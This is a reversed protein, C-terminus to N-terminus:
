SMLRCLTWTIHLLEWPIVAMKFCSIVCFDPKAYMGWRGSFKEMIRDIKQAEGPLHFVNLFVRVVKDFKTGCLELSDVNAHMVSLPFDKHQGLYDGIMKHVLFVILAAGPHRGCVTSCNGGHWLVYLWGVYDGHVYRIWARHIKWYLHLQRQNTLLWIISWCSSSEMPLSWISTHGCCHWRCEPFCNTINM